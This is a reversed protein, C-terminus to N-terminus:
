KSVGLAAQVLPVSPSHLGCETKTTGRWRGAREDEGIKVMTTCHTCGISPYGRNHLPNYPVDYKSLHNWVDQKTWRVLPNVKAIEFNEDWEVVRATARAATQERRIGTIWSDVRSLEERLPVVKRIHCCRDPAREWLKEGHAAAQEDVSVTPETNRITLGYRDQLRQWLKRTEEFLFGTDVTFVDIELKHRGILDVIVCGEPGFATAFTLRRGYRERAWTLTELPSAHELDDGFMQVERIDFNEVSIVDNIAQTM